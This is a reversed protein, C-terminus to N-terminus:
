WWEPLATPDFLASPCRVPKNGEPLELFERKSDRALPQLAEAQHPCRRCLDANTKPAWIRGHINADSLKFFTEFHSLRRGRCISRCWTELSPENSITVRYGDDLNITALLVEKALRRIELQPNELKIKFEIADAMQIPWTIEDTAPAANGNPDRPTWPLPNDPEHMTPMFTACAFRARSAVLNQRNESPEIGLLESKVPGYSEENENKFWGMKFINEHRLSGPSPDAGVLLADFDTLIVAIPSDSADEILLKAEHLRDQVLLAILEQKTGNPVLGILGTLVITITKM